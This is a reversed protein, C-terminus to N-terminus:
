KLIEKKIFPRFIRDVLKKWRAALKPNPPRSYAGNREYLASDACQYCLQIPGRDTNMQCQWECKHCDQCDIRDRVLIENVM